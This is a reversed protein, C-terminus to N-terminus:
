LTRPMKLCDRAILLPATMYQSWVKSYVLGKLKKFKYGCFIGILIDVSYNCMRRLMAIMDSMMITWFNIIQMASIFVWHNFDTQATKYLGVNIIKHNKLIYQSYERPNTRSVNPHMNSYVIDSTKMIHYFREKSLLIQNFKSWCDLCNKLLVNKKDLRSYNHSPLLNSFFFTFGLKSDSLKQKVRM